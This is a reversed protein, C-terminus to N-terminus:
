IILFKPPAEPWTIPGRGSTHDKINRTCDGCIPIFLVSDEPDLIETLEWRLHEVAAKSLWVRFISYQMRDGRGELKKACKRLRKPNRVDYCVLYWKSRAMRLLGQFKVCAAEGLFGLSM